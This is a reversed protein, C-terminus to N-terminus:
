GAVVQRVLRLQLHDEHGILDGIQRSGDLSDGGKYLTYVTQNGSADVTEGLEFRTLVDAKVQNVLTDRAYKEAFKEKAGAYNVRVEVPRETATDHSM